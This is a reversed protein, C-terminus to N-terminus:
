RSRGGIAEAAARLAEGAPYAAWPEPEPTPVIAPTPTGAKDLAREAAAHRKPVALRLVDGLVGAQRMGGGLLKRHRRAQKILDRPGVLASGVPAVPAGSFRRPIAVIAEPSQRWFGSRGSRGPLREETSLSFSITSPRSTRSNRSAMAAVTMSADSM